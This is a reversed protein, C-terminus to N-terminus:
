KEGIDIQLQENHKNLENVSEDSLRWYNLKGSENYQARGSLSLKHTKNQTNKCLLEVSFKIIRETSNNSNIRINHVETVWETGACFSGFMYWHSLAAEVGGETFYPTIAKRINEGVKPSTVNSKNDKSNKNVETYFSDAGEDPFVLVIKLVEKLNRKAIAEPSRKILVIIFITIIVCLAIILLGLIKKNLMQKKYDIM